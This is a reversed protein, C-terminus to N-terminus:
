KSFATSKYVGKRAAFYFFFTQRFIHKECNGVVRSRNMESKKSILVTRRFLNVLANGSLVETLKNFILMAM